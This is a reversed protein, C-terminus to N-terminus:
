KCFQHGFFLLGTVYQFHDTLMLVQATSSVFLKPVILTQAITLQLIDPIIRPPPSKPPPTLLLSVINPNIQGLM